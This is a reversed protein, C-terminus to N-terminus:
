QQQQWQQLLLQQLTLVALVTDLHQWSRSTGSVGAAAAAPPPTQPTM